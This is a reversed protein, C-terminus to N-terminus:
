KLKRGHRQEFTSKKYYKKYIFKGLPYGTILIAIIFLLGKIFNSNINLFPLIAFFVIFLSICLVMGTIILDRKPHGKFIM